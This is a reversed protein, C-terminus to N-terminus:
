EVSNYTLVHDLRVCPMVAEGKYWGQEYFENSFYSWKDANFKCLEPKVIDGSVFLVLNWMGWKMGVLLSVSCMVIWLKVSSWFSWEVVSKFASLVIIIVLVTSRNKCYKIINRWICVCVTDLFQIHSPSRVFFMCILFAYSYTYDTIVFRVQLLYILM